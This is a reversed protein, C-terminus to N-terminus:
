CTPAAVVEMSVIRAYEGSARDYRVTIRRPSVGGEVLAARIVEVRREAMRRNQRSYNTLATLRVKAEPSALAAGLISDVENRGEAPIRTSGVAFDVEPLMCARAEGSVMLAIATASLLISRLM